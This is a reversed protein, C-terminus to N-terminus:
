DEEAYLYRAKVQDWQACLAAISCGLVGTVDIEAHIVIRDVLRVVGLDHDALEEAVSVERDAPVHQFRLQDIHVVLREIWRHLGYTGNKRTVRSKHLRVM